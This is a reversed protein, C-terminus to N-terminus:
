IKKKQYYKYTFGTTLMLLATIGSWMIFIVLDNDIM